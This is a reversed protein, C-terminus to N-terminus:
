VNLTNKVKKKSIKKCNIKIDDLNEEQNQNETDKIFQKCAKTALSDAMYNGYWSKYAETDKDEPEQQHSNVHKFIVVYKCKLSYLVQILEKNEVPKNKSNIWNNKEWNSYWKTICNIVYTSDTYIYIISTNITKNKIKDGIIKLAQIVALLEMTQNTIKAGDNNIVQGLNDNDNDTFFVGIAGVATKKGNNSCAGDTFVCFKQNSM